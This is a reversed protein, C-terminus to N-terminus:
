CVPAVSLGRVSHQPYPNLFLRSRVASVSLEFFARLGRLTLIMGNDTVGSFICPLFATRTSRGATGSGDSADQLMDRLRLYKLCARAIKRRGSLLIDGFDQRRQLYEMFSLHVFTVRSDDQITVLDHFNQEMIRYLDRFPEFDTSRLIPRTAHYIGLVAGLEPESLPRVAAAMVSFIVLADGRISEDMGDIVRDYLATIGPPPANLRQLKQAVVDRNWLIGRRFDEWMPTAQLFMGDVLASIGAVIEQRISPSATAGFASNESAFTDVAARLYLEIDRQIQAKSMPLVTLNPLASSYASHHRSSVFIRLRSEPQENNLVQATKWLGSLVSVATELGLEEIADVVLFVRRMTDMSLVDVLSAWLDEKKVSIVLKPSTSKVLRSRVINASQSNHQILQHLLARLVAEEDSLVTQDYFCFFSVALYRTGAAVESQSGSLISEVLHRTLVSKGTGAQGTLLLM